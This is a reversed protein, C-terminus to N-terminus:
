VEDEGEGIVWKPHEEGAKIIGGWSEDGWEVIAKELLQAARSLNLEHYPEGAVTGLRYTFVKKDGGLYITWIDTVVIPLMRKAMGLEVCNEFTQMMYSTLHNAFKLEDEVVVGVSFLKFLLARLEYILKANKKYDEDSEFKSM